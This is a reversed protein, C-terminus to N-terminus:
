SRPKLGFLAASVSELVDRWDGPSTQRFIRVSPYWPSDRRDTLWRWNPISPLLLWTPVGLAGALHATSNDITIVLDLGAIQAAFADIDRMQDVGDDIFLEVQAARAEAALEATEGYQLNIWQIGPRRLLPALQALPISRARTFEKNKTHWALGIRVRGDAGHAKLRRTAETDAILYPALADKFRAEDPRFYKPLDGCPAHATIHWAPDLTAGVQGLVQVDPFSRAFLPRLRADCALACAIGHRVLDPVVSAFMIEDGIGQEPWVLLRGSKPKAGNWLPQPYHRMPTTFSQQKWRWGYKQWGEAFAGQLLLGLSENWPSSTENWFAEAYKPDLKQAHRFHAVAEPYQGRDHFILGRNNHAEAYDPQLAIAREFHAMAEDLQGQHRLVTGLSNHYYPADDHLRLARGILDVAAEHRDQQHAIVGLLHLSDSHRPEAALIAEYLPAAEDLKGSQHLAVARDFTEQINLKPVRGHPALKARLANRVAGIVPEWDGMKPQRFLRVTPYWPSDDRELLWRWNPVFSLLLWTPVGLAGALHATSNDITIVLDLGAIQAAFADLDRMQDVARDFALPVGAAKAEAALADADGYQLNIWQVGPLAMLPALQSLAISRVRGVDRNKTHWALGVRLRGDADRAKIRRTLEPDAVLYPSTTAKFSRLDPRLLRPLSGEPVHAAIGLAPDLDPRPDAIVEVSPFSRALLPQMRPSSDLVCRFGARVLDPILGAFMIEDGIGQEPWILLKGSDLREGQWLPLPYARAPTDMHGHRWRGEYKAWGEAFEGLLLLAISENWPADAYTPDLATARRYLALADRYRGQHLHTTGLNNCASVYDQKQALAKRYCAESEDLRGLACLALGLNNLAEPYHPKLALAREFAPVAEDTKGWAQLTTALAYHAEALEPKARIAQEYHTVAAAFQGQEKYAAAINLHAEALQPALALAKAHCALADDWLGREQLVLGLNSHAEPFDPCLALAHRFCKEAEEAQGQDKLVSGLNNHAVASDPKLEILRRYCAAAVDLSGESKLALGRTEVVAALNDRAEAYDPQLALAREYHVAAEDLKDQARLVAGLNNHYFPAAENVQLAQTILAVAEDFRGSQFSLVGLLHLADSQRPDAAVVQRYLGEAEALRGAQHLALADAFIKEISSM